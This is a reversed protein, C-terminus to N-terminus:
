VGVNVLGDSVSVGTNVRVFVGITM